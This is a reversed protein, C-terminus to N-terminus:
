SAWGFQKELEDAGMPVFTRAYGAMLPHLPSGGKNLGIHGVEVVTGAGGAAGRSDAQTQVEYVVQQVVDQVREQLARAEGHVGWALVIRDCARMMRVVHENNDPGIAHELGMLKITAHLDKPYTTRLAALNGLAFWDYGWM